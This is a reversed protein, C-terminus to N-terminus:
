YAAALRFCVAAKKRSEPGANGTLLAYGRRFLPEAPVADMDAAESTM